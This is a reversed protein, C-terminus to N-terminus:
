PLFKEILAVFFAILFMIVCAVFIKNSGEIQDKRKGQYEFEEKMFINTVKHITEKGEYHMTIEVPTFYGVNIFGYDRASDLSLFRKPIGIYNKDMAISLNVEDILVYYKRGGGIIKPANMGFIEKLSKM